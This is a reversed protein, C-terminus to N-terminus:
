MQSSKYLEKALKNLGHQCQTLSHVFTQTILM